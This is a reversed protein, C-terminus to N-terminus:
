YVKLNDAQLPQQSLVIMSWPGIAIAARQAFGHQPNAVTTFTGGGTGSFDSGYKTSNGNFHTYWTGAAPLGIEYVPFNVNTFNAVVVVDDGVGGNQWRHFAVVKAGASNNVHFVNVNPGTLGATAGTLNRRLAIMDRYMTRFSAYTTAKTWDLPDTDQFFDDELMEQGQFFMPIGPMTFIIGAGLSQLKRARVSFPNLPDIEEITRSHGNAVEDHSELYVVRKWADSPGSYLYTDIAWDITDMNRDADNAKNLEDRLYKHLRSWQNDYGMGGSGTPQVVYTESKSDEACNFLNPYTANLANNMSQMIGYGNPIATFDNGVNVTRFTLTSDWRLGDIRYEDIFLKVSDLIYSEVQPNTFDPRTDGWQTSRFPEQNFFYIGGGDNPAAPAWGDFRYLDLDNPGYHNHVVDLLVAINRDHCAKVFNKLGDPGGYVTEVAYPESPNYGWSYDGPFENIPMLKIANIGLEAIQNLRSIATTFTGPNGGPVDNFTGIHMQYIVLENDPAITFSKPGGWNYADPNYLISNGVSNVVRRNRPDRKWLQSPGPNIVFKYNHGSVAGAVDRSWVGPNGPDQALPRNTTNWSNFDGAVSVATANPAWVRFTYGGAYPTAGYKTHPQSSPAQAFAANGAVLGAAVLLAGAVKDWGKTGKAAMTM